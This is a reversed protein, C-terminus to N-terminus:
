PRTTRRGGPPIPGGCDRGGAVEDTLMQVAKSEIPGASDGSIVVAASLDIKGEIPASVSHPVQCLLLATLCAKAIGNRATGPRDGFAGHVFSRMPKALFACDLHRTNRLPSMDNKQVLFSLFAV